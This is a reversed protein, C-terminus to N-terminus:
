NGCHAKRYAGPTQGLQAQFARALQAGSSYGCRRAVDDLPLSSGALWRRAAELRIQALFAGPTLGTHQRFARSFNRESMAVHAALDEVTVRRALNDSMWDIARAIRPTAGLRAKMEATLQPQDGPRINPAVLMSAVHLATVAGLDQEVMRLAVDLSASSGAATTVPGDTVFLADRVLIVEPYERLLDDEFRWHSVCRRGALLGASALIFGGGGLGVTRNAQSAAQRIWDLTRADAMVPRIGAGGPIILTDLRGDLRPLPATAIEIGAATAIPGGDRSVIALGYPAPERALGTRQREEYARNAAAFVEGPGAMNLLHAGPYALVVIRRTEGTDVVGQGIGAPV